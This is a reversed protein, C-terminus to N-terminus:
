NRAELNARKPWKRNKFNRRATKRKRRTKTSKRIKSTKLKRNGTQKRAVEQKANEQKQLNEEINQKLAEREEAIKTCLLHKNDVSKTNAVIEDDIRQMIEDISNQSEDFSSVSIKLNTIDFNLDDIYNQKEKNFSSFEQIEKTLEDNEKDLVEIERLARDKILNANEKESAIQEQKERQNQLRKELKQVEEEILLIKQKETAYVIETDAVQKELGSVEELVDEVGDEYNEKEQKLRDLMEKLDKIEAALTEIERKRGLINVTKTAVSGGTISGSPSIIDGKLTVIRFSYNNQRALIVATDMNDVIVTRGLLNLLIQEYDKATKVLDSAIGIVGPLANKILKDLKKGKVSTIPLFSARGLSNARLHEVLKKADEETDTVINQLTQGLCMEVAIQYQEPVEILNALVGRVGKGLSSDKECDILLSKVSKTYGEKERETEELFRYKSEKMRIQNEIEFIKQNYEKTKQDAEQKKASIQILAKQMEERKQELGVFTKTSEQKTIRKSDLESITSQIEEKLSNEQKNLNEINAKNTSIIDQKEYKLDTNEEVKKKKGELQTEKDSLTELITQLQKEKEALEKAFTEKNQTLNQRKTLKQEKEEQLEQLKKELEVIEEKYRAENEKGAEIKQNAVQVEAKLTEIKNGNEFSLNQMQEIKTSLDEIEQKLAEKLNQYEANKSEEQEEQSTFISIDKLVESIKQKYTDINYLFLGIEINKLEEKLNLFKKAKESQMKLPEIKGEIETLIDNIRLLNLKTQELKKETEMKRTRYKVIGAAEEFIHRRDESKNSLIEDIKGQGIISYGDKGIGTDMFLELIDKLRCPTKNIYYGTEGSRYLRRTVTVEGYEIPLKGDSNDIVISCEAFGLSKRSQTGAFIIDEAKSSRLSKM